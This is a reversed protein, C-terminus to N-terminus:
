ADTLHNNLNLLIDYGQFPFCDGHYRSLTQANKGHIGTYVQVRFSDPVEGRSFFFSVQFVPPKGRMKTHIKGTLSVFSAPCHVWIQLHIYNRNSFLAKGVQWRLKGSPLCIRDGRNSEPLVLSRPLFHRFKLDQRHDPSRFIM